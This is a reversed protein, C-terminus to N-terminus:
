EGAALLALVQYTVGQANMQSDARGATTYWSVTKGSWTVVSQHAYQPHLVTLAHSAGRFLLLYAGEPASVAVLYPTHPFTLSNPSGLGQVGTGVYSATYFVCDGLGAIAATNAAIADAQSKLAADLKANDENFDTRLVQDTAEWQNLQYNTTHNTAM